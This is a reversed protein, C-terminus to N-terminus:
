SEGYLRALIVRRQPEPPDRPELGLEEFLRQFERQGYAPDDGVVSFIIEPHTGSQSVTLNVEHGDESMECKVDAYMKDSYTRPLLNSSGCANGSQASLACIVLGCSRLHPLCYRVFYTYNDGAGKVM